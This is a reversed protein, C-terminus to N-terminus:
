ASNDQACLSTDTQISYLLNYHRVDMFRWSTAFLSLWKFFSFCLASMNWMNKIADSKLYPKNDKVEYLFLFHYFFLLVCLLFLKLIRFHDLLELQTM